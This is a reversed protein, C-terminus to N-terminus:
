CLAGTAGDVCARGHSSEFRTPGDLGVTLQLVGEHTGVGALTAATTSLWMGSGGAYDFQVQVARGSAGALGSVAATQGADANCSVKLQSLVYRGADATIALRCDCRSFPTGDVTVSCTGALPLAGTQPLIGASQAVAVSTQAPLLAVALTWAVAAL